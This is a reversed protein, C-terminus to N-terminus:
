GVSIQNFNYNKYLYLLGVFLNHIVKYIQDANNNSVKGFMSKLELIHKMLLGSVGIFLKFFFLVSSSLIEPQEDKASTYIYNFFNHVHLFFCLM